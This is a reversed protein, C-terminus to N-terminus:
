WDTWLYWSSEVHEFADHKRNPDQYYGDLSAVQNVPPYDLWCVNVHRTNGAFGWAWVAICVNADNAGRSAWIGGTKKLLVLYDDYREVSLDKGSPVHPVASNKTEIGWTAVRVLNKDQQLMDRLKEYDAVHTHFDQILHKEQPPRDLYRLTLVAGGTVVLICLSIAIVPKM